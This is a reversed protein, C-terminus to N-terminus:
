QSSETAARYYNTYDWFVKVIKNLQDASGIETGEYSDYIDSFEAFDYFWHEFEHLGEAEALFWCNEAIRALSERNSLGGRKLDIIEHGISALSLAIRSQKTRKYKRLKTLKASPKVVEFLQFYGAINHMYQSQEEPYFYVEAKTSNKPHIRKLDSVDTEIRDAVDEMSVTPYDEFLLVFWREGDRFIHLDNDPGVTWRFSMWSVRKFEGEFLPLIMLSYFEGLAQDSMPTMQM